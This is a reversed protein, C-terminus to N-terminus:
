RKGSDAFRSIVEINTKFSTGWPKFVQCAHCFFYALLRADIWFVNKYGLFFANQEQLSVTMIMFKFSITSATLNTIPWTQVNPKPLSLRCIPLFSLDSFTKSAFNPNRVFFHGLCTIKMLNSGTTPRNHPSRSTLDQCIMKLWNKSRSKFLTQSQRLPMELQTSIKWIPWFIQWSIM